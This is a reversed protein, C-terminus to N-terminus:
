DHMHGAVGMPVVSALWAVMSQALKCLICMGMDCKQVAYSVVLTYPHQTPTVSVSSSLNVTLSCKCLLARVHSSYGLVLIHSFAHQNTEYQKECQNLWPVQMAIGEYQM